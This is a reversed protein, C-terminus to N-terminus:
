ANDVEEITKVKKEAATEKSALHEYKEGFEEQIEDLQSEEYEDLGNSVMNAPIKKRVLQKTFADRSLLNHM